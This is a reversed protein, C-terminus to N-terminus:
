QKNERKKLAYVTRVLSTLYVNEQLMESMYRAGKNGIENGTM